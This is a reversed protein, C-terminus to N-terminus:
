ESYSWIWVSPSSRTKCQVIALAFYTSFLFWHDAKKYCRYLWKVWRRSNLDCWVCIQIGQYHESPCIQTVAPNQIFCYSILTYGSFYFVTCKYWKLILNVWYSLHRSISKYRCCCSGCLMKFHSITVDMKSIHEQPLFSLFHCDVSVRSLLQIRPSQLHLVVASSQCM